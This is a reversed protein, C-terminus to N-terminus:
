DLGKVAEASWEDVKKEVMNAVVAAASNLAEIDFKSEAIMIGATGFFQMANMSLQSLRHAAIMRCKLSDESGDVKVEKYLQLFSDFASAWWAIYEDTLEQKTSCFLATSKKANAPRKITIDSM